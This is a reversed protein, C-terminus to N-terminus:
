EIGLGFDIWDKQMMASVCNIYIYGIMEEPPYKGGCIKCIPM